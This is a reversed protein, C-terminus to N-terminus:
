VTGDEPPSFSDHEYAWGRDILFYTDDRDPMTLEAETLETDPHRQVKLKTEYVKLDMLTFPLGLEQAIPLIVDTVVADRIELSGPYAAEAQAIRERLAADREYREFFKATNDNMDIDM